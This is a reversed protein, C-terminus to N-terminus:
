FSLNGYNNTAGNMAAVSTLISGLMNGALITYNGASNARASNRIIVNPSGDVDIGIDNSAVSNNEVTCESQLVHIGAGLGNAGNGDCRNDTIRCSGLVRIGDFNNGSSDCHTIIGAGVSIGSQLNRYVTCGTITVSTGNITGLIGYGQNNYSRCELVGTGEGIEFGDGGGINAYSSCHRVTCGQGITFGDGNNAFVVSDSITCSNGAVIGKGSNETSAANSVTSGAGVNVGEATNLRVSCHSVVSTAATSIGIGGNSEVTCGSIVALSQVSIGVPTNSSVNCNTITTATDCKIGGFGGFNSHVRLETLTARISSSLDIGTTWNRITGNRVTINRTNFVTSKIGTLPSAVGGVLEFGMLDITVNSTTIEIGIRSPAGTLNGTLYYSGSATIKYTSDADGPTNTTNIATRPEVQDLTKMTPAPAGPPTLSGQASAHPLHSLFLGAILATTIANKTKM